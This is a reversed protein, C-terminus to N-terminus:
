WGVGEHNLLWRKINIQRGATEGAYGGIGKASVVRHCPIIIQIPNKRCANGVARPSSNLRKAIEGYTCTEGLPIKLLEHWVKKQFDTGEIYFPIKTFSRALSFYNKLDSLVNKALQEDIKSKLVKDKKLRKDTVSLLFLKEGHFELKLDGIPTQMYFTSESYM